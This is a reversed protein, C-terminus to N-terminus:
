LYVNVKVEYECDKIKWDVKLDLCVHSSPRYRVRLGDIVLQGSEGLAM